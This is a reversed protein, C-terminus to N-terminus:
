RFSKGYYDQLDAGIANVSGDVDQLLESRTRCEVAPQGPKVRTTEATARIGPATEIVFSLPIAHGPNPATKGQPDRFRSNEFILVGASAPFGAADRRASGAGAL